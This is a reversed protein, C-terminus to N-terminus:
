RTSSKKLKLYDGVLIAAPYLVEEENLAHMALTEAFATAEPVGHEKGAAGLKQVATRIQAHESLMEPMTARLKDARAIAKDADHVEKGAAIPALLALNPMGTEEEKAFHPHLAEAVARAAEGVPGDILTLKVLRSHIEEHEHKLSSPVPAEHQHGQPVVLLAAGVLLVALTVHMFM